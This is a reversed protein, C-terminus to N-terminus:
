KRQKVQKIVLQKDQKNTQKNYGQYKNQQLIWM